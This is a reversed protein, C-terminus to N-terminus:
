LNIFGIRLIKNKSLSLKTDRYYVIHNIKFFLKIQNTIVRSFFEGDQNKKLSEDWEGSSQILLKHTLWISTQGM